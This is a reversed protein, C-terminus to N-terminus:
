CQKILDEIFIKYDEPLVDIMDKALRRIEFHAKESLRLKLFERFSRMNFTIIENVLLAEPIAYKLVDNKIDPYSELLDKLASLQSLALYDVAEDGSNFLFSNLDETKIIKKLTYRTSQVSPSVGIRHRSLEQLCGRSLEIQFTIRSHELTSTHGFKIIDKILKKDKEGVIFNGLYKEGSAPQVYGPALDEKYSDSLDNSLYCTRIAQIIEEIGSCHLLKIM